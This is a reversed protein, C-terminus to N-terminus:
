GPMDYNTIEVANSNTTNNHQCLNQSAMIMRYCIDGQHVDKCSEVSNASSNQINMLRIATLKMEDKEHDQQKKM